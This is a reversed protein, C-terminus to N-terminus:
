SDNGGKKPLSTINFRGVTESYGGSKKDASQDGIANQGIIRSRSKKGADGIAEM